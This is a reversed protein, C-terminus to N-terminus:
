LSNSVPRLTRRGSLIVQPGTAAPQQSPRNFQAGYQGQRMRQDQAVNTTQARPAEQSRNYGTGRGRRIDYQPNQRNYYATRRAREDAARQQADLNSKRINREPYFYSYFDVEPLRPNSYPQRDRAYLDEMMPVNPYNAYNYSPENQAAAQQAGAQAASLPATGSRSAAINRNQQLANYYAQTPQGTSYDFERREIAVQADSLEVKTKDIDPVRINMGRTFRTVGPNAAKLIAYARQGSVGGYVDGAVDWWNDYDQGLKIKKTKTKAM